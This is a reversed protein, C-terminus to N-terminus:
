KPWVTIRLADPSNDPARQAPIPEGLTLATTLAKALIQADAIRNGGITLTLGHQAQGFIMGPSVTVALGAEKLGREIDSAFDAVEADGTIVFLAVNPNKFGVLNARLMAIQRGSMRRPSIKAEIKLRMFREHEVRLQLEANAREVERQKLRAEETAALATKAQANARAAEQEANSIKLQLALSEERQIAQLKRSNWWHRIGFVSNGLLM